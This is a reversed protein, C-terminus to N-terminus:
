RVVGNPLGVAAFQGSWGRQESTMAVVLGDIREFRGWTWRRYEERSMASGPGPDIARDGM